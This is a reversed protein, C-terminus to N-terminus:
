FRTITSVELFSNPTTISSHESQRAKRAKQRPEIEGVNWADYSTVEDGASSDSFADEAAWMNRAKRRKLSFLVSLGLLVAISLSGYILLDVYRIPAAGTVEMTSMAQWASQYALENKQFEEALDTYTLLFRNNNGSVFVHMQNLAIDGMTFSSYLILGDNEKKYNFFKHQELVKFDTVGAQTSFEKAIKAKLMEAETEDIPAAEHMAVVTINRKFKLKGGPIAKEYPEQMVLSMGLLNETVEWGKPPAIKIGLNEMEVFSGDSVVTGTTEETAAETTAIESKQEVSTASANEATPAAPAIAQAATQSLAVNTMFGSALLCGFTVFIWRVKQRNSM